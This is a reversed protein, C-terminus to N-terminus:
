DIIYTIHVYNLQQSYQKEMVLSYDTWKRMKCHLKVSQSYVELQMHKYALYKITNAQHVATQFM